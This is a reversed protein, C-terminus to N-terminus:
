AYCGSSVSVQINTPRVTAIDTDALVPNGEAKWQTLGGHLMRARRHGIFELMWLERAARMGSHEDYVVVPRDLRVGVSSFRDAMSQAFNRMGELSSNKVVADYTSLPVAGPIHGKKFEGAKRADILITGTRLATGLASPEILIESADM